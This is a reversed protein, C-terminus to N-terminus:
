LNRWRLGESDLTLKMVVQNSADIGFSMRVLLTQLVPSPRPSM